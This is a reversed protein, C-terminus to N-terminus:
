LGYYDTWEYVQEDLLTYDRIQAQPVIPILKERFLVVYVSIATCASCCSLLLRVCRAPRSVAEKVAADRVTLGALAAMRPM